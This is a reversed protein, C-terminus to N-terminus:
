NKIKGQQKIENVPPLRKKLFLIQGLHSSQHEMVHFWQYQNSGWSGENVSTFWKDDRKRLGEITKQRVEKYINLYYDISKGKLTIRAKDGLSLAISWKEKEEKNFQRNEFTSVQYYAEAAALHMILAGIRNAKEDHLHDVHEPKLNKVANEVRSKLDNLMSIMAEIQPSESDPKGITAARQEPANIGSGTILLASNNKSISFTEITYEKVRVTRNSKIAENWDPIKNKSIKKEFKSNAIDYPVMKGNENEILLEFNDFYFKGNYLVLGGFSLSSTNNDLTGEIVYRKWKKEKIPRNRMNDFFGTENNKTDTRAWLGAWAAEEKVDVKVDASLKFKLPKETSIDISQVFSTWERSIERTTQQANSILNFALLCVLFSIRM